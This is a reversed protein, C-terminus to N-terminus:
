VGARKETLTLLRCEFEVREIQVKGHFLFPIRGKMPVEGHFLFTIRGKMPLLCAKLDRYGGGGRVPELVGTFSQDLVHPLRTQKIFHDM